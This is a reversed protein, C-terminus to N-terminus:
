EKTVKATWRGMSKKERGANKKRKEGKVREDVRGGGMWREREGKKKM